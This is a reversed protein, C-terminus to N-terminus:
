VFFVLCFVPSQRRGHPVIGPPVRLNRKSSTQEGETHTNRVQFRLGRESGSCIYQMFGTCGNGDAGCDYLHFVRGPGANERQAQHVAEGHTVRIRTGTACGEPIQLTLM